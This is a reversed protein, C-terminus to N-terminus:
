KKPNPIKYILWIDRNNVFYLFINILIIKSNIKIEKNIPSLDFKIFNKIAVDIKNNKMVLIFKLPAINTIVIKEIVKKGSLIAEDSWLYAWLGYRGFPIIDLKKLYDHIVKVAAKRENDFIVYAYKIDVTNLYIIEDSSDIVNAAILEKIVHDAMLEKSKPLFTERLM